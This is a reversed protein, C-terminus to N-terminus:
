PEGIYRVTGAWAEWQAALEALKAPEKAALDNLETRDAAINYLEWPADGYRVAKWDGKRAAKGKLIAWNLQEHVARAGGLLGPLLTRGQLKDVPAGAANLCTAPLDMINGPKRDWSGAAIKGPWWAILPTSIGGEHNWTKFRRFPTNSANAWPLGVYDWTGAPGAPPGDKKAADQACGGNDSLFFVLTKRDAGATELAARIRGVGQDIRDVMAAYVAMRHAWFTREEGGMSDWAPTKDDRPSLPLPPDFLGIERQKASRKDRLADWGDEYKGEYKAIDVPRAHIPYHPANYAVYIMFPKGSAAGEEVFKVAYDTWVDTSYFDPHLKKFEEARLAKGDLKMGAMPKSKDNSLDWHSACPGMTASRDCDGMVGEHNKGTRGVWYGAKRMASLFHGQGFRKDENGPYCGSMLAARSPECKANNYFQTFRMGEGALRDLNPTAIEGGYCGIDSFGMDDVMVLVINPRDAPNAWASAAMATALIALVLHKMGPVICSVPHGPLARSGGVIPPNGGGAHGGVGGLNAFPFGM